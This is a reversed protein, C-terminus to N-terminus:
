IAAVLAKGFNDVEVGIPLQAIILLSISTVLLAIILNM